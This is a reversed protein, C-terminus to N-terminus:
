EMKCHLGHHVCSSYLKMSGISLILSVLCTVKIWDFHIIHKGLLNDLKVKFEIFTDLTDSKRHVLYTYGFRSYEDILSSTGMGGYAHMCALLDM